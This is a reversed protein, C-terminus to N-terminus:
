DCFVEPYEIIKTEIICKTEKGNCFNCRYMKEDKKSCFIKESLNYKLPEDLYFYKKYMFEYYPTNCVSCSIIEETPIQIFRQIMKANTHKKM